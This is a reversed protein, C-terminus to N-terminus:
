GEIKQLTKLNDPYLGKNSILKIGSLIFFGEPATDTNLIDNENNLM